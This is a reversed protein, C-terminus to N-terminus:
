LDASAGIGRTASVVGTASASFALRFSTTSITDVGGVAGVNSDAGIAGGVVVTPLARMSVPLYCFGGVYAGATAYALVGFQTVIYFRQCLQLDTTPDRKELPTAASGIELQVGWLRVSGSQIGVSGARAAYSSGASLWLTMQTMDTGATTGFTKGNTSPLTFTMSYRAFSTSITVVQGTGNVNASPSGGTGFTQDFSAGVKLAASGLAYFSLTVTKGALRRVGEINQQFIVLNSAGSAGTFSIAPTFTVAEDGVQTRDADLAAVQTISVTDGAGLWTAWRDMTFAGSTTFPGAGRQAVNFLPNHLLNRGVDNFAPALAAQVFATTAISTDSDGVAPTVARADGTFVPAALPARTTDTPHVHDGRSVFAATGPAATGDMAPSGTYYNPTYAGNAYSAFEAMTGAYATTSGSRAVPVKDTAM